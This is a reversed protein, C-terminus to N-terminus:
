VVEAIFEDGDAFWWGVTEGDPVETAKGREEDSFKESVTWIKIEQGVQVGLTRYVKKRLLAM